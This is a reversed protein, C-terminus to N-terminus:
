ILHRSAGNRFRCPFTNAGRRELKIVLGTKKGSRQSVAAGHRNADQNRYEGVAVVCLHHASDPVAKEFLVKKVEDGMVPVTSIKDLLIGVHQHPAACLSQNRDIGPQRMRERERDNRYRAVPRDVPDLIYGEIM